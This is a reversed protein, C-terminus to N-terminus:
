GRGLPATVCATDVVITRAQKQELVASELVIEQGRVIRGDCKLIALDDARESRVTLM